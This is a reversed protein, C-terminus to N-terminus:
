ISYTPQLLVHIEAYSKEKNESIIEARRMAAKFYDMTNPHKKAYGSSYMEDLAAELATKLISIQVTQSIRINEEKTFM